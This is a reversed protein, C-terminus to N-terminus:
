ILLGIGYSAGNLVLSFIFPNRKRILCKRYILAEILWIVSELFIAWVVPYLIRFPLICNLFVAAPNTAMNVLFVLLLDHLNRGPYIAAAMCEVIETTILCPIMTYVVIIQFVPHDFLGLQLM